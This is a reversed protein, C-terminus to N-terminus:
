CDEVMHCCFLPSDGPLLRRVVGLWFNSIPQDAVDSRRVSYSVVRNYRFLNPM